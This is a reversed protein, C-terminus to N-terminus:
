EVPHVTEDAIIIKLVKKPKPTNLDKEEVPEKIEKIENRLKNIENGQMKVIDELSYTNNDHYTSTTQNTHIDDGNDSHSDDSHSEEINCVGWPCEEWELSEEIPIINDVTANKDGRKEYPGLLQLHNPMMGYIKMIPKLYQNYKGTEKFGSAKGGISFGWGKGVVQPLEPFEKTAWIEVIGRVLKKAQDFVAKYVRGVYQPETKIHKGKNAKYFVPMGIIGDAIQQGEEIQYIRGNGTPFDLNIFTGSIVARDQYAEEVEIPSTWVYNIDREIM